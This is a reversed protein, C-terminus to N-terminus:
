IIKPGKFYGESKHSTNKLADDNNLSEKPIDERMANKLEIPHFSPETSNTNVEQIDSFANLIEKLQPLLEKMEAETLNLRAVDAVHKILERDIKM